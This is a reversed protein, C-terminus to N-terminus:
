FRFELDMSALCHVLHSKLPGLIESASEGLGLFVYIYIYVCGHMYIFIYIYICIYIRMFMVGCLGWAFRFGVSFVCSLVVYWKGPTPQSLLLLASPWSLGRLIPNLTEPEQSKCLLAFNQNSFHEQEQLFPRM